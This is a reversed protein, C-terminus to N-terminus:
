RDAVEPAPVGRMKINGKSIIHARIIELLLQLDFALSQKEIYELELEQKLALNNARSPGFTKGLKLVAYNLLGPRVQFYRRWTPDQMDVFEPEM